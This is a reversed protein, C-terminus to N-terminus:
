MNEESDITILNEYNKNLKKLLIGYILRYYLKIIKRFIFVFVSVLIAAFISYFILKGSFGYTMYEETLIIVYELIFAINIFLLNFRIYRDANSRVAVVNEMLDKVSSTNKINVYLTYFRYIFCFIIVYFVINYVWHFIGFGVNTEPDSPFFYFLSLGLLLELCSIILIWKVISSSSKHIMSVIDEKKFKIFDQDKKWHTKLLDLENM